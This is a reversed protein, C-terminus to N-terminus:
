TGARMQVHSRPAAIDFDDFQVTLEASTRPSARAKGTVHEAPRFHRARYRVGACRCLRDRVGGPSVKGVQSRVSLARVSAALVPFLWSRSLKSRSSVSGSPRESRYARSSRLRRWSTARIPMSSISRGSATPSPSALAHDPAACRM